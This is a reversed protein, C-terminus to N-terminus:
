MDERWSLLQLPRNNTQDSIASSCYVISANAGMVDLVASGGVILAGTIHKDGGGTFLVSGTVIVPGYWSFDGNIDLDGEIFLMGCGSVGASLTVYTGGTDYHVINSLSCSSPDQPTAGPTPTGWGEGPGPISGPSHTASSVTYSFDASEKFADILAQIDMNTGNYVIDPDGGGMGTVHPSGNVTVSGPNETTVIGAKDTSGCSDTGIIYTHSGQVTTAAEVYLASPVTITPVRMTEVKIAKNSGGRSGYSTVLYINEGTTTNRENLADGNTDGWYVINGGADTQHRIQITYGFDSPVRDYRVHMSNSPDYGKEKASALSGVYARWQAQTPYADNIPNAVNTRLRARAEECGGQAEYFAQESAKYNGGIKIETTTTVVATTGLLALVGFFVLAAPLVMGKERQLIKAMYQFLAAKM